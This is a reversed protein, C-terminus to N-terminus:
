SAGAFGIAVGAGLLMGGTEAAPPPEASDFAPPEDAGLGFPVALDAAVLVVGCTLAGGAATAAVALLVFVVGAASLVFVFAVGGADVWVVCGAVDVLCGEAAVCGVVDLAVVGTTRLFVLDFGVSGVLGGVLGGDCGIAVGTM